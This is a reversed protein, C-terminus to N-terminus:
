KTLSNMLEKLAEKDGKKLAEKLNADYVEAEVPNNDKGELAERDKAGNIKIERTVAKSESKIEERLNRQFGMHEKVKALNEQLEQKIKEKDITFTIKKEKEKM